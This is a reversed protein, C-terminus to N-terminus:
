RSSLDVCVVEAPNGVRLKGIGASVIMDTHAMRYHGKTYKPFFKREPSLIGGIVPMRIIGGHVHGSLVLDAGWEAYAPLAMPNHAILVTPVEERVGITRFLDEAKCERLGSYGGKENKYCTQPLVYGTFNVGGLSVTRDNLLVAGAEQAGSALKQRKEPSLDTEHNGFTYLVPAYKMLTRLCCIGDSITASDTSRSVLDGTVAIVDPQLQEMASCLAAITRQNKQHGTMKSFHVDSVQAIRLKETCLAPIGIRYCSQKM